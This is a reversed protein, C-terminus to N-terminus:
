SDAKIPTCSPSWKYLSYYEETRKNHIHLNFLPFSKGSPTRVLPRKMIDFEVVIEKNIIARGIHHRDEVWGPKGGNHPTGGIYQGYSAPDFLYKNATVQPDGIHSPLYPLTSILGDRQMQSLIEMENFFGRRENARIYDGLSATLNLAEAYKIYGISAITEVNTAQVFSTQKPEELIDFPGYVMVDLEMHWIDEQIANTYAFLAFLRSLSRYWLPNDHLALTNEALHVTGQFIYLAYPDFYEIHIDHKLLNERWSDIQRTLLVM